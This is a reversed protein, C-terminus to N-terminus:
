ACRLRNDLVLAPVVPRADRGCTAGAARRQNILTIVENEYNQWTAEWNNYDGCYGAANAGAPLALLLLPAVLRLAGPLPRKNMANEMRTIQRMVSRARRIRLPM